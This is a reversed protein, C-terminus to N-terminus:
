PHCLFFFMVCSRTALFNYCVDQHGDVDKFYSFFGEYFIISAVYVGYTLLLTFWWMGTSRPPEKEYFKELLFIDKRLFNHHWSWLSSIKLDVKLKSSVFTSGGNKPHWTLKPSHM